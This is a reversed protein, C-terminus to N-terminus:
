RGMKMKAAIKNGDTIIEIDGITVGMTELPKIADALRELFTDMTEGESYALAGGIPVDVTKREVVVIEKRQIKTILENM